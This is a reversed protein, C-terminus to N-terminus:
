RGVATDPSCKVLIREYRPDTYVGLFVRTIYLCKVDMYLRLPYFFDVLAKAGFKKM